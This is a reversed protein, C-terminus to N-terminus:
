KRIQIMNASVSKLSEAHCNALRSGGSQGLGLAVDPQAVVAQGGQEVSTGLHGVERGLLTRCTDKSDVVEGRSYHGLRGYVHRVISVVM